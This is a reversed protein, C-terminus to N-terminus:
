GDAHALHYNGYYNRRMDVDNFFGAQILGIIEDIGDSVSHQPEFGLERSVRSFDVRYNRPDGGHDRYRVRRDPLRELIHDIIQRKTKNNREGGANFIKHSVREAPARLVLDILRAFDRVHCYPRWTDPDYVDLESQGLFLDRTFENVSLDFRMRPAAGFATAFRLVTPHYDGRGSEMLAAEAAVKAEAYLSLPRLETQETALADGAVVGYNSCTSIFIVKNLNCTDFIEFCRQIGDINIKRSCDPYKRTIPDGVLGALVVVDTVDELAARLASPDCLDAVSMEYGPNLLLGSVSAQHGYVFNDISRVRFGSRLLETSVPVGIYGGGGILLIRRDRGSGFVETVREHEREFAAAPVAANGNARPDPKPREHPTFDSCGNTIAESHMVIRQEKLM